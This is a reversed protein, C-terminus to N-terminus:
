KKRYLKSCKSFNSYESYLRCWFSNMNSKQQSADPTKNSKELVKEKKVNQLLKNAEEGTVSKETNKSKKKNWNNGYIEDLNCFPVSPM